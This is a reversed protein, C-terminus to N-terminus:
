NNFGIDLAPLWACVLSIIIKVGLTNLGKFGCKPHLFSNNNFYACYLCTRFISFNKM